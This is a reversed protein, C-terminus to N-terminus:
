KGVKRANIEDETVLLIEDSDDSGFKMGAPITVNEKVVCRNLEAGKEVIVDGM